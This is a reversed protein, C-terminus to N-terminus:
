LYSAKFNDKVKKRLAVVLAETGVLIGENILVRVEKLKEWDERWAAQILQAETSEVLTPKTEVTLDTIPQLQMNIEELFSVFASKITEPTAEISFQMDRELIKGEEDKFEVLVVRRRISVDKTDSIVRNFTYM